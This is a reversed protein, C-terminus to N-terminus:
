LKELNIEPMVVHSPVCILPDTIVATVSGARNQLVVGRFLHPTNFVGMEPKSIVGIWQVRDGRKLVPDAMADKRHGRIWVVLGLVACGLSFLGM